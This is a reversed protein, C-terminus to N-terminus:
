DRDRRMLYGKSNMDPRFLIIFCKPFFMCLVLSWSSILIAFIEMAVTYKGQASLSAPIYSIWVSLFALMSFTIFQAENFSDPLKRALFAVIFSTMALLFLYGLMTWFAIPSGENCEIMILMPQNEINYQPFPPALSLWSVCLIFQLISCSFIITYSVRLHTWRRMVSGPRTAMFAFMVMITKALICSVCITFVLGFTAQRLLCKETQPFGIFALSSLFCSSLSVLLLCSLVYNNAKVIPTSKHQIFLRLICNPIISSFISTGALTAGLPDDYSLFDIHKPLCRTKQLNPWENWPCKVCDNSDTHNCIEGQPCAICQFCCTPQGRISVKRFGPHCSESCASTPVENNASAWLLLSSNITFVKGGSATTDYSGVKVHRITNSASLQWNVIDYVAPPDGNDDFYLERDDNLPLRVKKMYHLIQWPYFNQIQACIGHLSPGDKENCKRLDELAKALVHVATYINYSVRLNSVDNYSNQISDLREEGTCVKRQLGLYGVTSFTCNFAEEWFTMVLNGPLTMNPHLKNLFEKFGPILGNYFALGITGFLLHSFSAMKQLSTVSWGESAVFVKDRINEKVMETMIPVLDLGTAFTIVVRATSKKMVEIIHPANRDARSTLINETFAVCAGVRIIEQKVLQIGQQGYDNDVGLLGVWTWNFHLVLKALGKSQFADSPVTRFFSPFKMRDSLLSSTSYYSVQPYKYLGLIHAVAISLPSSSSGIFGSLPVNHLCRYNPIAMKDGSLVQLVSAINLPIVGCTDYWHFGLTINPLIYDNRNIEEIAFLLAQLQQFYGFHITTCTTRPPPETFSIDKFNDAVRVPLMAGIIIDGPHHIGELSISELTCRNDENYSTPILSTLIFIWILCYLTLM